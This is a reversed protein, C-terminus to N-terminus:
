GNATDIYRDIAIVAECEMQILRRTTFNALAAIYDWSNFRLHRNKLILNHIDDEPYISDIVDCLAIVARKYSENLATLTEELSVINVIKDEMSHVNRSHAVVDDSLTSTINQAAEMHSEIQKEIVGIKQAIIFPQRVFEKGTM